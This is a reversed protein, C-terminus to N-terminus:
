AHLRRAALVDAATVAAVAGLALAIGKRRAGRRMAYALAALDLADGGVRAWLWRSDGPRALIGAGTALERSGFARLATKSNALGLAKGLRGPMTTEVLGLGISFWGLTTAMKRGDM